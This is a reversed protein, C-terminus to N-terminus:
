TNLFVYRHLDDYKHLGMLQKYAKQSNSELKVIEVISLTEPLLVGLVNLNHQPCFRCLRKHFSKSVEDWMFSLYCDAHYTRHCCSPLFYHTTKRDKKNCLCFEKEEPLIAAKFKKDSLALLSRTFDVLQEDKEIHNKHFDGGTDKGFEAVVSMAKVKEWDENIYPILLERFKLISLWRIDTINEKIHSDYKGFDFNSGDDEDQIQMCALYALCALPGCEPIAGDKDIKDWEYRKHKYTWAKAKKRKKKDGKYMKNLDNKNHSWGLSQLILKMAALQYRDIEDIRSFEILTAIKEKREFILVQFHVNGHVLPFKKGDYQLDSDSTVMLRMIRQTHKYKDTRQKLTEHDDPYNIKEDEEFKECDKQLMEQIQYPAAMQTNDIAFTANPYVFHAADVFTKMTVSDYWFEPNLMMQFSSINWTLLGHFNSSNVTNKADGPLPLYIYEIEDEHAETNENDDEAQSALQLMSLLSNDVLSFNRKQYISLPRKGFANPWNGPKQFHSPHYIHKLHAIFYQQRKLHVYEIKDKTLLGNYKSMSYQFPSTISNIKGFNIGIDKDGPEEGLEKPWEPIKIPKANKPLNDNDFSKMVLYEMQKTEKIIDKVKDSLGDWEKKPDFFSM